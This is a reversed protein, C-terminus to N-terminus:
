MSECKENTVTIRKSLSGTSGLSVLGAAAYHLQVFLDNNLDGTLYIIVHNGGKNSADSITDETGNWLNSITYKSDFDLKSKLTILSTSSAVMYILCAFFLMTPSKM